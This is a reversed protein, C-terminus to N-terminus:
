GNYYRLYDAFSNWKENHGAPLNIRRDFEVKNLEYVKRDVEKNMSTFFDEYTPFQKCERIEEISQFLEYPFM